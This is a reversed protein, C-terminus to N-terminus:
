IRYVQILARRAGAASGPEQWAAIRADHTLVALREVSWPLARSIDAIPDSDDATRLAVLQVVGCDDPHAPERESAEVGSIADFTGHGPMAHDAIEAGRAPAAVTEVAMLLDHGLFLLVLLLSVHLWSQKKESQRNTQWSM